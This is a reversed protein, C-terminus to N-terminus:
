NKSSRKPLTFYFTAGENVKGEAWIKGGHRNVIRQVSALGIGTGEFEEGSHLRQFAGFLKDAYQMDFGIGNDKVYYMNEPGEAHGGVEIVAEEKPRTFKVANAMLNFFVQRIIGPDGIAPPLTKIDFQLKRESTTAKIEDSVAKALKYMDIKSPEIDKRGIRSLALLDEILKGMRKTNDRIVDFLRKGEDDLKDAYDEFLIKSFGDIARIPARLDHSVSYSFSELERNATELQATRAKILEELHERYKTLEEEAKKRAGIDEVMELFGRLVGDSGFFPAARNHVYMRSGDDRVGQTEVEETKGSVMARMGPCHPCVAERKEFEKFCYKGTFESASKKFLKAFTSNVMFIRYDTDMVAIGLVTNDVLARYREQSEWLAEEAQKRETIDRGVGILGIVNDQEDKFPVGTWEYPVMVGDKRLLHGEVESFGKVFAEQISKTITIKDQEPFFDLVHKGMLKEPLFGTVMEGKKNWKVLKGSMDLLYIIDPITDMINKQENLAKALEATREKVRQELEENAKILAEEARKRETIDRAILLSFRQSGVSFFTKTIEVPLFSGDKRKQNVEFMVKQASTDRVKQSAEYGVTELDIERNSVKLLEEKSYGLSECAAPNVDIFKGTEDNIFIGDKATNFFARYKEESEQLAKEMEKRKFFGPIEYKTIKKALKPEKKLYNGIYSEIKSPHAMIFRCADDGKARCMIESAVLPLGFSEECWGSSYGANMVCVPFDSKRASKLWADSEFSFPHDYILYYSEDPAPRSEAFIDVFAWGTHSFHVPGASLKEIPDKLEMKKHFNKADQRGIAHAIDFLLQRAVNFAEEEGQDKYLNKISDFFDISMSAARVLIYREGFIEITGKSPDEKRKKFYKNVYDQAKQFIPEFQKPVKVTNLM